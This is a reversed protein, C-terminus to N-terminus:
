AKKEEKCDKQMFNWFPKGYCGDHERRTPSGAGGPPRAYQDACRGKDSNNRDKEESRGSLIRKGERSADCEVDRSRIQDGLYVVIPFCLCRQQYEGSHSEEIGRMQQQM